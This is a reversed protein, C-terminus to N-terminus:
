PEVSCCGLGCRIWAKEDDIAWRFRVVGPIDFNVGMHSERDVCRYAVVGDPNTIRAFWQEEPRTHWQSCDIPYSIHIGCDARSGACLAIENKRTIEDPHGLGTSSWNFGAAYKDSQDDLLAWASVRWAPNGESPRFDAATWNGLSDHPILVGTITGPADGKNTRDGIALHQQDYWQKVTSVVDRPHGPTVPTWPSVMTGSGQPFVECYGDAVCALAIGTQGNMADDWRAVDPYDEAEHAFPSRVVRGHLAQAATFGSVLRPNNRACETADSRVMWARVAGQGQVHVYLCLTDGPTGTIRLPDYNGGDVNVLIAMVAAAPEGEIEQPLTDSEPISFIAVLPGYTLAPTKEVLRQCDHFEPIGSRGLNPGVDVMPMMIRRIEAEGRHIPCERISTDASVQHQTNTGGQQTNSGCGVALLFSAAAGFHVWRIRM